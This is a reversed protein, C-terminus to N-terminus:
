NKSKLTMGDDEVFFPGNETFLGFLSSAGPGGQLWLILPKDKIKSNTSNAENKSPNVKKKDEDFDYEAIEGKDYLDETGEAPFFWFWLNSNYKSDVTLYGSYSIVDLFYKKDVRALQRARFDDYNQIYPTLILPKGTSNTASFTIPEKKRGKPLNGDFFLQGFVTNILTLLFLVLYNM